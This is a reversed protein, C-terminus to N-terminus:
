KMNGDPNLLRSYTQVLILILHNNRCRKTNQNIFKERRKNDVKKGEIGKVQYENILNSSKYLLILYIKMSCILESRIQYLGIWM